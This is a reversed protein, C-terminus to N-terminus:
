GSTHGDRGANHRTRFTRRLGSVKVVLRRVLRRLARARGQRLVAEWDIRMVVIGLVLVVVISAASLYVNQGSAIALAGFSTRATFAVLLALVFKGSFLSIFTKVPSYRVVGLPVFIVDDPLPSAAFLFAALFISGGLLRKLSDFRATSAHFARGAGYGVGYSTFKGIAAGLAAVAALSILGFGTNTSVVLVLVLLYPLPFFPVVSGLLSALFVGLLPNEAAMQTLFGIFDVM